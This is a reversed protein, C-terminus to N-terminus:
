HEDAEFDKNKSNGKLCTALWQDYPQGSLNSGLKGPDKSNPIFIEFKGREVKSKRSKELDIAFEASKKFKERGPAEGADSM